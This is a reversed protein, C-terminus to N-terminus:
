SIRDFLGARSRFRPDGNHSILAVLEEYVFPRALYDDCRELARVKAEPDPRGLVIVPCDPVRCRDLEDPDGLVLMDPDAARPLEDTSPFALVDFGDSRLQRELFGRMTAEPEALLLATMGAVTRVRVGM